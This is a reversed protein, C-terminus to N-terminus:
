FHSASPHRVQGDDGSPLPCISLPRPREGARPARTATKWTARRFEVWDVVHQKQLPLRPALMPELRSVSASFARTDGFSSCVFWNVQGYPPYEAYVHMLVTSLM